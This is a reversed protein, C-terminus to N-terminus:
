NQNKSFNSILFGKTETKQCDKLSDHQLEHCRQQWQTPHQSEHPHFCSCTNKEFVNLKEQQYTLMTSLLFPMQIKISTIM